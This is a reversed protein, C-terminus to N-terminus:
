GPRVGPEELELRIVLKRPRPRTAAARSSGASSDWRSQHAALYFPRTIKVPHQPQEADLWEGKADPFQKVLKDIQAKTSGMLFEGPEIRVM